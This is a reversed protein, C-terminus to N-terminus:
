LDDGELEYKPPPGFYSQLATFLTLHLQEPTQTFWSTLKADHNALPVQHLAWWLLQALYHRPAAAEVTALGRHLLTKELSDVQLNAGKPTM